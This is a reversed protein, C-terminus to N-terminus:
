YGTFHEDCLVAIKNFFPVGLMGEIIESNLKQIIVERSLLDTSDYLADVKNLLQNALVGDIFDKKLAMLIELMVFNTHVIFTRENVLDSDFELLCISNIADNLINQNYQLNKIDEITYKRVVLM